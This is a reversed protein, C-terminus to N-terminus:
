PGAFGLPADARHPQSQWAGYSLVCFLFTCSMLSLGLGAQCGGWWSGFHNRGKAPQKLVKM